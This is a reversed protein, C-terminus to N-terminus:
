PKTANGKISVPNVKGPVVPKVPRLDEPRMLKRLAANIWFFAQPTQDRTAIEESADNMYAYVLRDGSKTELYGSYTLVRATNGSKGGFYTFPVKLFSRGKGHYMTERFKQNWKPELGNPGFAAILFRAWEQPTSANQLNRDIEGMAERGGNRGAFYTEVAANLRDPAVQQALADLRKAMELRTEFDAGAFTRSANRLGYKPFDPGGFGAQAVWWTKTPLQLRTNCLRLNDALPQLKELGVRRFLIDTATNDSWEIMRRGLALVPTNDFPFDGLSQNAKTVVFKENPKLNGAQMQRMVEFLVATKFNSALPFQWEPNVQIAQDPAFGIANKPFRAVYLGVRGTFIRPQAPASLELTEPTSACTEVANPEQGSTQPSSFGQPATEPVPAQQELGSASPSLRVEQITSSDSATTEVATPSDIMAGASFPGTGELGPDEIALEVPANVDPPRIVAGPASAELMVVTPAAPVSRSWVVGGVVASASLVLILLWVRSMVRSERGFSGSLALGVMGFDLGISGVTDQVLERATDIRDKLVRGFRGSRQRIEFRASNLNSRSQIRLM